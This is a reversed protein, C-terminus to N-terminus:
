HLRFVTHVLKNNEAAVLQTTVMQDLLSWVAERENGHLRYRRYLQVFLEAVTASAEPTGTGLVFVALYLV